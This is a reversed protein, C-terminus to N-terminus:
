KLSLTFVEDDTYEDRDSAYQIAERISHGHDLAINAYPTGSGMILKLEPHDKWNHEQKEFWSIYVGLCKIHKEKYIWGILKKGNWEIILANDGPVTNWKWSGRYGRAIFDSFGEITGTVGYIKNKNKHRFIKKGKRIVRDKLEGTEANFRDNTIRSDAYLKGKYWIVTSM